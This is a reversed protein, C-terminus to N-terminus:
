GNSVQNKAALDDEWFTPIIRDLQTRLIQAEEGSGKQELRDLAQKMIRVARERDDNWRFIQDRYHRTKKGSPPLLCAPREGGCVTRSSYLYYYGGEYYVYPDRVNLNELLIM